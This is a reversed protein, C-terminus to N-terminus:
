AANAQSRLYRAVLDAACGRRLPRASWLRLARPLATRPAFPAVLRGTALHGSVLAGHGMLVGAGNVAEEVALAYLSYVPGRVPFAAGAARLWIPWDQDWVADSLCPVQALDAICKLPKAVDPACVPFIDDPTLPWGQAADFFLCLDFAARKLNPPQEMATVSISMDPSLARLAPMLPSLWLQAIAPLTAIHVV